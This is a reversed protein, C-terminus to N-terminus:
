KLINILTTIDGVSIKGDMNYDLVSSYREATTLNDKIDEVRDVNCCVDKKYYVRIAKVYTDGGKFVMMSWNNDTPTWTKDDMTGFANDYHDDAYGNVGSFTSGDTVFVIKEINLAGKKITLYGSSWINCQGRDYSYHLQLGYKSADASSDSDRRKTTDITVFNAKNYTVTFVNGSLSVTGEYGDIDAASYMYDQIDLKWYITKDASYTTNNFVVGGQGEPAGVVVITYAPLATYTVTFTKTAEDYTVQWEYGEVNVARVSYEDITRTTTFDDNEDLEIEGRLVEVGAGKPAGEAYVVHYTAAAKASYAVTLTYTHDGTRTVTVTTDYGDQKIVEYDEETLATKSKIVDGDKKYEWSNVYVGARDYYVEPDSTYGTVSVTYLFYKSYNVTFTHSAEDYSVTSYVDEYSDAVETVSSLDFVSTTKFTDGNTYTNEGLTLYADAPVNGTFEITYTVATDLKKEAYYVDFGGNVYMFNDATTSFKVWQVSTGDANWTRQTATNGAAEFTGAGGENMGSTLLDTPGGANWGILGSFVVKTIYYTSPVEVKIYNFNALYYSPIEATVVDKVDTHSNGYPGDFHVSKEQAMAATGMAFMVVLAVLTAYSKQFFKKM